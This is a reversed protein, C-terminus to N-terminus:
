GSFGEIVFSSLKLRLVVSTRYGPDLCSPIFDLLPLVEVVRPGRSGLLFTGKIGEKEKSEGVETPM